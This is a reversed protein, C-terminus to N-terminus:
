QNPPQGPPGSDANQITMPAFPSQPPQEFRATCYNVAPVDALPQWANMVAVPAEEAVAVLPNKRLEVPTWPELLPM